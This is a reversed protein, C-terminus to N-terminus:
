FFLILTSKLKIKKNTKIDYKEVLENLFKNKKIREKKEKNNKKYKKILFSLM